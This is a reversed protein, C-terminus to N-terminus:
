RRGRRWEDAIMLLGGILVCALMLGNLTIEPAAHSVYEGHDECFWGLADCLFETMADDRRDM